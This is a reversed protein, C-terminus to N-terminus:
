AHNIEERVKMLLQGLKNQGKGKCVGWYVDGWTNGEILENPKTEVLWISLQQHLQFKQRLCALMVDDKIHEWDARRELSRGLKKALGPSRATRVADHDADCTMKFAQFAHEVTAYAKGNFCIMSPFFNSLFAYQGAFSNIVM